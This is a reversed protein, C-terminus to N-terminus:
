DSATEASYKHADFLLQVYQGIGGFIIYGTCGAAAPALVNSATQSIGRGGTNAM